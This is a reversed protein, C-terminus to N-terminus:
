QVYLHYTTGIMIKGSRCSGSSFLQHLGVELPKLFVWYGDSIMRTICGHVGLINNEGLNVDFLPSRARYASLDTLSFEDIGFFLNKIDDIETECKLKLEAQNTITPEDAFSCEYNIIPILIAKGVPVKCKRVVSGGFTGALFWVNPDQQKESAHVGSTDFAPNNEKPISLLWRWWKVIWQSYRLGYPKSDSPFLLTEISRDTKL